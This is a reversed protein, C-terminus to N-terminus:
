CRAAIVVAIRLDDFTDGVETFIGCLRLRGAGNGRGGRDAWGAENVDGAEGATRDYTQQLAFRM